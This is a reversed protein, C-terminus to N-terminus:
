GHLPTYASRGDVLVLMKDNAADTFGRASIEWDHPTIQAVYLGPVTRLAEPLTTFGGRRIDEATLVFIAAPADFLAESKRTVSTVNMSMNALQDLDLGAAQRAEQAARDNQSSSGVSSQGKSNEQAQPRAPFLFPAALLLPLIVSRTRLLARWSTLRRHSTSLTNM